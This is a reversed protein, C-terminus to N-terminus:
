EYFKSINCLFLCTDNQENQSNGRAQMKEIFNVEYM